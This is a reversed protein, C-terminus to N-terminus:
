SQGEEDESLGGTERVKQEAVELLEPDYFYWGKKPSKIIPSRSLYALM